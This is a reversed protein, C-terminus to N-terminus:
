RSTMWVTGSDDNLVVVLSHNSLSWGSNPVYRAHSHLHLLSFPEGSPRHTAPDLRQGWLCYHGDRPSTFYLTKGDPSWNAWDTSAVNAITIWDAEQSGRGNRYPAIVIRASAPATRVTFSVWHNDPSFRAYLLSYPPRDFLTTLQQSALDLVSIRYPDGGFTLLKRDDQSWDTARLCNDCVKQAMGGFAYSFLARKGAPEYVSFAVRSNSHDLVPYRQVLGDLGAQFEHNTSLDRIWVHLRGQQTSSYAVRSGDGSLVAYERNAPGATLRALDGILRGQNLDAVQLWLDRRIEYNIFALGGTASCAPWTEYGAGTTLRTFSGRVKNGSFAAQWLNESDALLASFVVNDEATWCSPLPLAPAGGRISPDLAPDAKKLGAQMFANYIGTREAQAGDFPEIWWDIQTPDYAKPSAYGVFLLRRSDPLWIPYRSSTLHTPLQKPVLDSLSITYIAGSHPLAQSLSPDGVWFAIRKGDPSFKPDLGDRALFRPSGGLTPILFLGGGDRDSHYVIQAGDPSFDPATNGLGDFTLQLTEGGAVHKLYINRGGDPSRDSSFALLKGDRSLAPKDDLGADNTLRVVSVPAAPAPRRSLFWGATVCLCAAAILFALWLRSKAALPPAQTALSSLTTKQPSAPLEPNQLVGIFRYGSGPVTEIYRANEASDDLARRLKNIAAHLGHEFDVFTGDPWLKQRLEQSSVVEGPRALLVLLIDLPQGALRIRIGRKTLEGTATNVEYPGFTVRLPLHSSAPM